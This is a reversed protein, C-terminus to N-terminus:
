KTMVINTLLKNRGIKLYICWVNDVESIKSPTNFDKNLEKFFDKSEQETMGIISCNLLIYNSWMFIAESLTDTIVQRIYTGKKYETIFTFKEM